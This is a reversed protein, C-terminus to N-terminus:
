KTLKDAQENGPINTHGPIWQLTIDITDITLKKITEHNMELAEIEFVEAKFIYSKVDFHTLSAGQLQHRGSAPANTLM